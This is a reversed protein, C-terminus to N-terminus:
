QREEKEIRMRIEEALEAATERDERFVAEFRGDPAMLYIYGSHAMLYGAPAAADDTRRYYVRFAQAAAAIDDESGTLGILRPHFAAVFAAMVDPTDRKPDVTIFLPAVRDARGGLLNLASALYALTTPCVDPCSTYGFFVLQWRGAFDAETVRRGTHDTLTFRSKILADGTVWTQPDAAPFFTQRVALAAALVVVLAVGIWAGRRLARLRRAGAGTERGIM